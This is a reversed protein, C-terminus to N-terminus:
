VTLHNPLNVKFTTGKGIKSKLTINGNLDAVINKTMYLGLGVGISLESGRYFIDFIKEQCDKKIGIGNDTVELEYNYHDILISVVIKHNNNMPVKFTLANSILNNLLLKLRKVDTYLPFDKKINVSILTRKFNDLHTFNRLVSDIIENPDSAEHKFNLKREFVHRVIEKLTGDLGKVVQEIRRLYEDINDYGDMKILQLCGLISLLPSRLDHSARYVFIELERTIEKLKDASRTLIKQDILQVVYNKKHSSTQIEFICTQFSLMKNDSTILHLPENIKFGRWVAVIRKLKVYLGPSSPEWINNLSFELPYFSILKHVSQSVAVIDLSDNVTLIYDIDECSPEIYIQNAKKM